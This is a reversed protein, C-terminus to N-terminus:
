GRLPFCARDHIKGNELASVSLSAIHGDIHVGRRNLKDCLERAHHRETLTGITIHPIYPIDLRLHPELPGRYLQDHLLSLKSYGADPVLFVYATEDQDDAGLMAYRCSFRIASTRAAVEAVHQMYEGEAVTGCGFVLTFHPAVANRHRLDHMGRFREVFARDSEGLAPYALTFLTSM